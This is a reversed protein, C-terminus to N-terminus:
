AGVDASRRGPRAGFHASYMTLSLHNLFTPAFLNLCNLLPIKLYAARALTLLTIFSSIQVYLSQFLM